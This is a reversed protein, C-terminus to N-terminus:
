FIKLVLCVTLMCALFQHMCSVRDVTGGRGDAKEVMARTTVNGVGPSSMDQGAALNSRRVSVM